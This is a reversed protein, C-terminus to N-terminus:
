ARPGSLQETYSWPGQMRSRVKCEASVQRRLEEMAVGLVYQAADALEAAYRGTSGAEGAGPGADAADPTGSSAAGKANSADTPEVEIGMDNAAGSEAGAAAAKQAAAAAAPAKRVVQQLTDALWAQM